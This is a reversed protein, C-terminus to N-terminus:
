NSSATRGDKTALWEARSDPAPKSLDIRINKIDIPESLHIACRAGHMSSADGENLTVNPDKYWEAEHTYDIVATGYVKM